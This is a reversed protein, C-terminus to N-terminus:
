AIAQTIGEVYKQKGGFGVIRTGKVEQGGKFFVVTPISMVGYQGSLESQDVDVKVITLKDKYEESLEELVPEAMKCPGCWVAFFDVMVPKDSQLVQAGFQDDTIHVVAM